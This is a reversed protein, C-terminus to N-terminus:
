ASYEIGAAKKLRDWMAAIPESRDVLSELSFETQEEQQKQQRRGSDQQQRSQERQQQFSFQHTQQQTVELRDVQLGQQTLAARLQPLQNDLLEKGNATEASFQATIQGNHSTIKVDVQGLSQPYLILKAESVGNATGIKMQKVFLESVKQAFENGHVIYGNNSMAQQTSGSVQVTSVPVTPTQIPLPTGESATQKDSQGAMRNVSEVAAPVNNIGAEAQYRSLAQHVRLTQVSKVTEMKLQSSAFAMSQPWDAKSVSPVASLSRRDMAFTKGDEKPHMGLAAFLEQVQKGTDQWKPQKITDGAQSLSVLLDMAKTAAEKSLGQQTFTAILRQSDEQNLVATSAKQLQALAKDLSDLKQEVQPALEQQQVIGSDLLQQLMALLDELQEVDEASLDGTRTSLVDAQQMNQLANGMQLAFLNGMGAYEQPIVSAVNPSGLTAMMNVVNM